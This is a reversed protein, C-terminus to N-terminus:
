FFINGFEVILGQESKPITRARRAPVRHRVRDGFGGYRESLHSPLNIRLEARFNPVCILPTKGGLRYHRTSKDAAAIGPKVHRQLNGVREGETDRIRSVNPALDTRAM